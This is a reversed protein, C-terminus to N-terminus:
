IARGAVPQVDLSTGSTYIATVAVDRSAVIELVGITVSNVSAGLILETIRCCDDMTASHPPLKIRDEGRVAASNPERGVVAGALVEPIFRKRIEVPEPSYNHISVHTAYAGPQLPACGCGAPQTGCVFKVSYCVKKPRCPPVTIEVTKAAVIAGDAVVDLTGNVIRVTDSCPQGRFRVEFKLV